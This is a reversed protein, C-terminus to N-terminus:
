SGAGVVARYAPVGGNALDNILVKNTGDPLTYWEISSDGGGNEWVTRFPYTGAQQVVFSYLTEGGPPNAGRGGNYQGLIVSRGFADAPNAGSYTAFGDDSDVGM